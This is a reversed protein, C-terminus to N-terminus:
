DSLAKVRSKDVLRWQNPENPDEPEALLIARGGRLIPRIWDSLELEASRPVPEGGPTQIEVGLTSKLDAVPHVGSLSRIHPLWVFRGDSGGSHLGVAALAGILGVGSGGVRQAQVGGRRAAQRAASLTVVEQKATLAFALLEANPEVREMIALGPNAGSASHQLLDDIVFQLLEQLSTGDTSLTLCVSSNQSTYNIQPHKPLQHRTVARLGALGAAELSTGLRRAQFGTGRSNVDDTDDIGLLVILNPVKGGILVVTVPHGTISVPKRRDADLRFCHCAAM